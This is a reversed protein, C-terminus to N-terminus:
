EGGEKVVCSGNCEGNKYKECIYLEFHRPINRKVQEKTLRRQGWGIKVKTPENCLTDQCYSPLVISPYHNPNIRCLLTPKSFIMKLKSFSIM